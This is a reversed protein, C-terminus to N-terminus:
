TQPCTDPVHESERADGSEPFRRTVLRLNSRSKAQLLGQMALGLIDDATANAGNEYTVVGVSLRITTPFSPDVFITADTDRMIKAAYAIASEEPCHPLVAVIVTGDYRALIDYARSYTRMNMAFEAVLDDVSGPGLDADMAQIDDFDFVACSVPYGHRQAKDLEETLRQMMYTRNRLGTLPDTYTADSLVEHVGELGDVSNRDRLAADVRVMVMPLNFPKTIYDAAGLEYGKTISDASGKVTVFIVSIDHLKPNAKLRRCAEYGDMDPLCVDLLILDITENECIELAEEASSAAVADYQNMRLGECLVQATEPNDDTVCVKLKRM